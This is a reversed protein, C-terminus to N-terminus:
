HGFLLLVIPTYKPLASENDLLAVKCVLFLLYKLGNLQKIPGQWSFLSFYYAHNIKNTIVVM